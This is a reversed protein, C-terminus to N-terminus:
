LAYCSALNCYWAPRMKFLVAYAHYTANPSGCSGSGGDGQFHLHLEHLQDRGIWLQQLAACLHHHRRSRYLIMM